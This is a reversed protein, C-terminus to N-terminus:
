TASDRNEFRVPTMVPPRQGEWDLLDKDGSVIVDVDHTRALAILYDDNSDRTETQITDPDDVLDVTTEVTDVFLMANEPSIWKRLRPRTTLVERIEGLLKPCMVVEFDASGSLWSEIIRHSAGRQIAASVFVNADIVVLV